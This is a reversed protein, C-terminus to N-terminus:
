TTPTTTTTSLVAEIRDPTIREVVGVVLADLTFTSPHHRTVALHEGTDVDALVPLWGVDVYTDAALPEVHTVIRGYRAAVRDVLAQGDTLNAFALGTAPFGLSNDRVGYIAVSTADPAARAVTPPDLDNTAIVDNLLQSEDGTFVIVTATLDDGDAECDVVSAAVPGLELPWSRLRPSGRRDTDFTWGASLATRDLENRATVDRPTRDAHLAVDPPYVLAPTGYRWGGAAILAAFRASALEAPRQWQVLTRTLDMVNGFAQVSVLRPEGSAPTVTPDIIQEISGVARPHWVWEPDYFSVRIPVGVFPHSWSEPPTTVWKDFDPDYWTGDIELVDITANGDASGRSITLETFGATVDFWGTDATQGGGYVGSGYTGDGYRRSPSGGFYCDVIVWWGTDGFRCGSYPFPPQDPPPVSTYWAIFRVDADTWDGDPNSGYAGSGYTGDGYRRGRHVVYLLDGAAVAQGDVVGPGTMTWAMGPQYLTAPPIPQPWTSPDSDVWGAPDYPPAAM